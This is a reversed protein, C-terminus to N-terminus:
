YSVRYNERYSRRIDTSRLHRMSLKRELESFDFAAVWSDPAFSAVFLLWSM